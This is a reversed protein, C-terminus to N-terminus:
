REVYVDYLDVRRGQADDIAISAAALGAASVAQQIARSRAQFTEIRAAERSTQAAVLRLRGNAGRAQAAADTLTLQAAPSLTTADRPFSVSGVRQAMVAAPAAVAPAAAMQQPPPTAPRPTVVPAAAVAPAPPAPASAPSMTTQPAAAQAPAAVPELVPAPPPLAGTNRLTQDDALAKDRDRTLQELDSARKAKADPTERVPKPVTALNPYPRGEAPPPEASEPPGEFLSGVERVASKGWEIPNYKDACATLSFIIGLALSARLVAASRCVRQM